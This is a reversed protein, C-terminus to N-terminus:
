QLIYCKFFLLLYYRGCYTKGKSKAATIRVSKDIGYDLNADSLLEIYRKIAPDNKLNNEFYFKRVESALDRHVKLNSM